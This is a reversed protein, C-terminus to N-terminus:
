EKWNELLNPEPQENNEVVRFFKEVAEQHKSYTPLESLRRQILDLHRQAVDTNQNLLVEGIVEKKPVPMVDQLQKESLKHLTTFGKSVEKMRSVVNETVLLALGLMGATLTPTRLYFAGPTRYELTVNTPRCDSPLGYKSKGLRRQHDTELPVLPVSLYWDLCKTLHHIGTWNFEKRTNLLEPPIGLHVHFGAPLGMHWSYARLLFNKGTEPLGKAWPARKMSGLTRRILSGLTNTVEYEDLGYHPRWEGLVGDCGIEGVFVLYTAASALSKNSYFVFFEPDCGLTVELIKLSADKGQLKDFMGQSVLSIEQEPRLPGRIQLVSEGLQVFQGVLVGLELRFNEPLSIFSGQGEMLPDPKIQFDM